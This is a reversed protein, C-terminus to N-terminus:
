KKHNIKEEIYLYGSRSDSSPLDEGSGDHDEPVAAALTASNTGTLLGTRRTELRHITQGTMTTSTRLSQGTSPRDSESGNIDSPRHQQTPDM